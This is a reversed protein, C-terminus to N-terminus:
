RRDRSGRRAIGRPGAASGRRSGGRAAVVAEGLPDSIRKGTRFCLVDPDITITNLHVPWCWDPPVAVPLAEVRGTSSGGRLATHRIKFTRKKNKPREELARRRRLDDRARREYRPASEGQRWHCSSPRVLVPGARRKPEGASGRPDTGRKSPAPLSVMSRRSLSTSPRAAPSAYLTRLTQARQTWIRRTWSSWMRGSVAASRIWSGTTPWFPTTAPAATWPTAAPAAM